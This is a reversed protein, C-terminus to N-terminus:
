PATGFVSDSQFWVAQGHLNHRITLHRTEFRHCFSPAAPIDLTVTFAKAARAKAMQGVSLKETLKYVGKRTFHAHARGLRAGHASAGARFDVVVDAPAFSTYRVVLRVKEHAAYVFLRARATRLLCESPPGGGAEGEADCIELNGEEDEFEEGAEECEAEEEPEVFFSRTAPEPDREETVGDEAYVSFTHRGSTELEDLQFPSECPEPEAGDVACRFEAEPFPAANRTAAFSFAPAEEVIAGEEPGDTIATDIVNPGGGVGAAVAGSATCLAVLLAVPLLLRTM